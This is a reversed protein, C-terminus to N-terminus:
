ALLRKIAFVLSIISGVIGLCAGIITGVGNSYNNNGISGNVSCFAAKACFLLIFSAIFCAVAVFGLGKSKPVFAFIAAGVLPLFFGLLSVVSFKNYASLSKVYYGGFVANIGPIADSTGMAGNYYIGVPFIMCAIAIAFVFLIIPGFIHRETNQSM